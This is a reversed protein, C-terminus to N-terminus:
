SRKSSQERKSIHAIKRGRGLQTEDASSLPIYEMGDMVGEQGGRTPLTRPKWGLESFTSAASGEGRVAAVCFRLAKYFQLLAVEAALPHHLLPSPSM